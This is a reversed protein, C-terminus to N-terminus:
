EGLAALVPALREDLLRGLRKVAAKADAVTLEAPADAPTHLQEPPISWLLHTTTLMAPREALAADEPPEYSTSWRPRTWGDFGRVEVLAQPCPVAMQVRAILSRGDYGSVAFTVSQVRESTWTVYPPSMIPSRAVEWAARAFEAPDGTIPDDEWCRFESHHLRLYAGYRSVGDSALDRDTADDFIFLM